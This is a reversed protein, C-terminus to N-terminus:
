ARRRLLAQVGKWPVEFPVTRQLEFGAAVIREILGDTRGWTLSEYFGPSGGEETGPGIEAIFVGEPELVRRIEGLVRGLDFAHDLSNMYIVAVSGDAIELAHFDGTVVWPNDPGPNLDIGIADAGLEAFVRVEAGSRAALCLVSRGQFSLPGAALREALAAAFRQDHAALSRPRLADLKLRQHAVYTEYDPYVRRATADDAARWRRGLRLRLAAKRLQSWIRLVERPLRSPKM